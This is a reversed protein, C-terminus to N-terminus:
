VKAKKPSVPNDDVMESDSVPTSARTPALQLMEFGELAEAEEARQVAGGAAAVMANKEEALADALIKADQALVARCFALWDAKSAVPPPFQFLLPPFLDWWRQHVIFRCEIRWNIGAGTPLGPWEVGELNLVFRGLYANQDSDGAAWTITDVSGLVSYQLEQDTPSVSTLYVEAPIFGISSQFVKSGPMPYKHVVHPHCNAMFNPETLEPYTDGLTKSENIYPEGFWPYFTVTGATTLGGMTADAAANIQQVPVEMPVLRYELEVGVVHTYKFIRQFYLNALHLDHLGNENDETAPDTPDRTIAVTGTDWPGRIFQCGTASTYKMTFVFGPSPLTTNPDNTYSLLDCWESAYSLAISNHGASGDFRVKHGFRLDPAGTGMVGKVPGPLRDFRRHRRHHEHGHMYEREFEENVHNRNHFIEMGPAYWPSTGSHYQLVPRADKAAAQPQASSAPAVAAQSTPPAPISAQQAPRSLYGPSPRPLRPVSAVTSSAVSAGTYVAPVAIARTSPAVSKREASPASAM